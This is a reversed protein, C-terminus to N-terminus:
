PGKYIPLDKIWQIDFVEGITGVALLLVYLGLIAPLVWPHRDLFGKKDQTTNTNDM